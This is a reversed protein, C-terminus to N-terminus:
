EEAHLRPMEKDPHDLYPLVRVLSVRVYEKVASSEAYGMVMYRFLLLLYNYM